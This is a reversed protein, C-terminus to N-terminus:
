RWADASDGRKWGYLVDDKAVLLLGDPAWAVDAERAGIPMDVLPVIARTKPDLEKIHLRPPRAGGAEREVFSVRGRRPIPQLSRGVDRAVTDSRGSRTDAIQLTSPQGLVFLVLTQPDTWAHYGVPKVNELVVQPDKGDLTFQWLRQTGDAEVRVVSIHGRDPTVTPSYESEPTNTVRAVSRSAIDYRYIDTQSARGPEGGAAAAGRVSTFLVSRGDPTFSPQNDYGPSNSINVPRIVSPTAGSASLTALFI